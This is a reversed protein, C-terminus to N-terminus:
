STARGFCRGPSSRRNPIVQYGDNAILEAFPKYRGGATHFNNHAEDFLVRPHRGDKRVGAPRGQYRLESRSAPRRWRRRRRPRVGRGGQPSRVARENQAEQRLRSLDFPAGLLAHYATRQSETLVAEIREIVAAWAKRAAQRTKQKAAQFEPSEVLKRIAEM